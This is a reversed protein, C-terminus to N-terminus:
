SIRDKIALKTRGAIEVYKIVGEYEPPLFKTLADQNEYLHNDADFTSFPLERHTVQIYETDSMATRKQRTSGTTGAPAYSKNVDVDFLEAGSPSTGPRGSLSVPRMAVGNAPSARRVSRRAASSASVAGPAGNSTTSSSTSPSGIGTNRLRGRDTRSM